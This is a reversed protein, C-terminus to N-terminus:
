GRKQWRLFKGKKTNKPNPQMICFKRKRLKGFGSQWLSNPLATRNNPM